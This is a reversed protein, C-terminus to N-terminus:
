MGVLECLVKVFYIGTNEPLIVRDIPSFRMFIRETTNSNKTLLCVSLRPPPSQKIIHISLYTVVSQKIIHISLYTVVSEKYQCSVQKLSKLQIEINERAFFIFFATEFRYSDM